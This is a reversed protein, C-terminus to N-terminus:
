WELLLVSNWDVYQAYQTPTAESISTEVRTKAVNYRIDVSANTIFPWGSTRTGIDELCLQGMQVLRLEDMAEEYDDAISQPCPRCCRKAVWYGAMTTAWRNASWCTQLDSDNYRSCCYLKVRSTGYNCGKVLRAGLALNISNDEAIALAPVDAELPNTTLVTDGVVATANLVVQVVAPAGGGDFELMTGRIIPTTIAMCALSTAGQLADATITIVQGTAARHDDLRLQAGEVGLYDYVDQPDCYLNLTALTM